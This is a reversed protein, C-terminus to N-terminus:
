HRTPPRLFVLKESFSEADWFRDGPATQCIWDLMPTYPLWPYHHNKFPVYQTYTPAQLFIRQYESYYSFNSELWSSKLSHLLAKSNKCETSFYITGILNQYMKIESKWKVFEASFNFVFAWMGSRRRSNLTCDEPHVQYIKPVPSTGGM